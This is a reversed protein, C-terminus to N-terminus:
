DVHSSNLRTSKRDAMVPAKVPAKGPTTAPAIVPVGIPSKVPTKVPVKVPASACRKGKPNSANINFNKTFCKKAWVHGEITLTKRGCTSLYDVKNLYSGEGADGFMYRPLGFEEKVYGNYKFKIFDLENVGNVDCRITYGDENTPDITFSDYGDLLTEDRTKINVLYCAKLTDCVTM